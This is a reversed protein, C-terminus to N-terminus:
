IFKLSTNNKLKGTLRYRLSSYPLSLALAAKEITEYIVGTNSCIVKKGRGTTCRIKKLKIKNKTEESHHKGVFPHPLKKRAEQMKLKNEESIPNGKPRYPRHKQYSSMKAKSEASHKKGKMPSEQFKRSESLRLRTEKPHTGNKGGERINLLEVGCSKYLDIYLKEYTNLVEQSVDDPLEHVVEKTHSDWGYKIVSENMKRHHTITGMFDRIRNHTNHSQGIYVKGTPSTIKYIGVKGM